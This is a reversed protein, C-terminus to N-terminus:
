KPYNIHNKIADNNTRISAPVTDFIYILIERIEKRDILHSAHLLADLLNNHLVARLFSGPDFGHNVYDDIAKKM